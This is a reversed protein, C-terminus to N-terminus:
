MADVLEVKKICQICMSRRELQDYIPALIKDYKNYEEKPLDLFENFTMMQIEGVNYREFCDKCIKVQYGPLEKLVPYKNSQFEGWAHVCMEWFGQRGHIKCIIKGM